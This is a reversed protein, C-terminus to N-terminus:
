ICNVFCLMPGLEFVVNNPSVCFGNQLQNGRAGGAKDASVGDYQRNASASLSATVHRRCVANVERPSWGATDNDPEVAYLGDPVSEEIQDRTVPNAM